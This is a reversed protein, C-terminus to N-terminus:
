LVFLQQWAPERDETAALLVLAIGVVGTILKTDAEWRSAGRDTQWSAYGAIGIRPTRLGLLKAIWREAGRRLLADQTRQFAANFVHALGAAGSCFGSDTIHAHSNAIQLLRARGEVRLAASGLVNSCYLLAGGVGANGDCWGISDRRVRVEPERSSPGSAGGPEASLLWDIARELLRASRTAYLDNEVFRALMGIIGAVGHAVGLEIAGDPLRQRWPEPLFRAPTRWAVGAGRVLATAELHSVVLEAMRMARNDRRGAVSVGIGAIGSVLDFRDEWRPVELYRRLATDFHALVPEAQARDVMHEVVWSTGALGGFLAVTSSQELASSLALELREVATDRGCHALLLATGAEGKLGPLASPPLEELAAAIEFATDRAEAACDAELLPKWPRDIM